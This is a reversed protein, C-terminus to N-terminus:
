GKGIQTTIFSDLDVDDSPTGTESVLVQEVEDSRFRRPGRSGVRYSSLVGDRVLRRVTRTSVNLHDAVQQTTLYRRRATSSQQNNSTASGNSLIPALDM